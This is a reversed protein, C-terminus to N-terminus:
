PQQLPAPATTFFQRYTSNIRTMAHMLSVPMTGEKRVAEPQAEWARRLQNLRQKSIESVSTFAVNDEKFRRLTRRELLGADGAMAQRIPDSSLLSQPYFLMMQIRMLAKNLSVESMETYLSVEKGEANRANPLLVRQYIGAQERQYLAQM